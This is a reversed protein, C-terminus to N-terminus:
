SRTAVLIYYHWTIRIGEKEGYKEALKKVLMRDQNRDFNKVLPVMEILDMLEDENSYYDNEKYDQVESMIFGSKEIPEAVERKWENLNKPFFFNEMEIREPFFELIEKDAQPGLSCEFFVGGKKLVRYAEQPSYEALRTIVVDFIKDPFPLIMGDGVVLEINHSIECNEKALKLMAKSVDLGVHESTKRTTAIEQIIHATGCGIDLIKMGPKLVSIVKSAYRSRKTKGKKIISNRLSAQKKTDGNSIL